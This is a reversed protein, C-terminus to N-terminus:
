IFVCNWCHNQTNLSNSSKVLNLIQQSSCRQLFLMGKWMNM